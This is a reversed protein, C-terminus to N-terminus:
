AVGGRFAATRDTSDPGIAVLPPLSMARDLAAHALAARKASPPLSAEYTNWGDLYADGALTAGRHAHPRGCQRDDYGRVFHDYLGTGVWKQGAEKFAQRKADIAALSEASAMTRGGTMERIAAAEVGMSEDLAARDADDEIGDLMAAVDNEAKASYADPDAAAIDTALENRSAAASRTHLTRPGCCRAAILAKRREDSPFRGASRVTQCM